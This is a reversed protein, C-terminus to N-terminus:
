WSVSKLVRPVPQACRAVLQTFADVDDDHAGHPFALLQHLFDEVWERGPLLAGHPLPNPLYVNGGEVWPQAAHARSVKGGEPHVAVVGSVRHKLTSIVAAGNATEEVLSERTRAYKRRLALFQRCTEPFDWQGKVRDMLYIDSGRRGAVLGVVYDNNKGDKFTMDWSQLVWLNLPLEDYWAEVVQM